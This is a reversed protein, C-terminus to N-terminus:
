GEPHLCVRSLPSEEGSAEISLDRQAVSGCGLGIQRSGKNTFSLVSILRGRDPCATQYGVSIRPAPAASCSFVISSVFSSARSTLRKGPKALESSATRAPSYPLAGATSPNVSNGPFSPVIVITTYGGPPESGM